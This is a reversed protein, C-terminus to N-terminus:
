YEIWKGMMIINSGYWVKQAEMLLKNKLRQKLRTHHTSVNSVGRMTLTMEKLSRREIYLANLLVHKIFSEAQDDMRVRGINFASLQFLTAGMVYPQHLRGLHAASKYAERLEAHNTAARIAIVAKGDTVPFVHQATKTIM